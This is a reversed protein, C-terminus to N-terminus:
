SRGALRAVEAVLTDPDVPKRLELEVGALLERMGENSRGYETLAVAPIRGGRHAELRPVRGVLGYREGQDDAIGTVLVDPRWRELTELAEGTSAVSRVSAGRPELAMRVVEASEDDDEVVLVRVGGLNSRGAAPGSDSAHWGALAQAPTDRV